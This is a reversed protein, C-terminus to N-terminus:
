MLDDDPQVVVSDAEVVPFPLLMKTQKWEQEPMNELTDLLDDILEVMLDDNVIERSIMLSTKVDEKTLKTLSEDKCINNLLIREENNFKGIGNVVRTGGKGKSSNKSKCRKGINRRYLSIM